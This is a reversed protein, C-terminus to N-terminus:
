NILITRCILRHVTVHLFTFIHTAFFSGKQAPFKKYLLEVSVDVRRISELCLKYSNLLCLM